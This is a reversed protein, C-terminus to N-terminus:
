QQAEGLKFEGATAGNAETLDLTYWDGDQKTGAFGTPTTRVQFGNTSFQNQFWEVVKARPAPATFRMAVQGGSESKGDINVGSVKSGPYLKVGDIDMNASIKDVFPLDIDAKIGPADIKLTTGNAKAGNGSGAAAGEDRRDCGAALLLPLLLAARMTM